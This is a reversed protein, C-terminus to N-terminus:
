STRIIKDAHQQYNAESSSPAPLDRSPRHQHRPRRRSSSVDHQEDSWGDYDQLRDRQRDPGGSAMQEPPASSPKSTDSLLKELAQQVDFVRSRPPSLREPRFLPFAWKSSKASLILHLPPNGTHPHSMRSLRTDPSGHMDVRDTLRRMGTSLAQNSATGQVPRSLDGLFITTAEQTTTSCPTREIVSILLREPTSESRPLPLTKCLHLLVRIASRRRRSITWTGYPRGRLHLPKPSAESSPKRGPYLTELVGITPDIAKRSASIGHM